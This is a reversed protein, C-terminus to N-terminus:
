RRDGRESPKEVNLLKYTFYTGGCQTASSMQLSSPDIMAETLRNWNDAYALTEAFRVRVRNGDIIEIVKYHGCGYEKGSFEGVCTSRITSV